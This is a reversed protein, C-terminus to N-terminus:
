IIEILGNKKLESVLRQIDGEAKNQSVDYEEAIIQAAQGLNKKENLLSWTRTAVENLGFYTGSKLDLMVEEGQVQRTVVDTKVKVKSSASISKAM